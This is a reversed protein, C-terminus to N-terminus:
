LEYCARFKPIFNGNSLSIWAKENADAESDNKEISDVIYQHKNQRNFWKTFAPVELSLMRVLFFRFFDHGLEDNALRSLFLVEKTVADNIFHLAERPNTPLLDKLNDWAAYLKPTEEPNIRSKAWAEIDKPRLDPLTIQLDFVKDLYGKTEEENSSIEEFAKAVRDPDVAFVFFGQKLSGLRDVLPFLRRIVECEAREMDDVLLVVTINMAAMRGNIREILKAETDTAGGNILRHLDLSLGNDFSAKIAGLWSWSIFSLPSSGLAEDFGQAILDLAEEPTKATWPNVWAVRFKKRHPLALRERLLKLVTTKGSGWTGFVGIRRLRTEPKSFHEMLRDVFYSRQFSDTTVEPSTIPAKLQALLLIFLAAGCVCGWVPSQYFGSVLLGGAPLLTWFPLCHRHKGWLRVRQFAAFFRPLLVSFVLLALCAGLARYKKAAAWGEGLWHYFPKLEELGKFALLALAGTILAARFIGMLQHKLIQGMVKEAEWSPPKGLWKRLYAGLYENLPPVDPASREGEDTGPLHDSPTPPPNPGQSMVPLPPKTRVLICRGRAFHM